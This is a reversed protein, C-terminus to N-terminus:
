RHRSSCELDKYIYIVLAEAKTVADSDKSAYGNIYIAEMVEDFSDSNNAYDNIFSEAQKESFDFSWAFTRAASFIADYRMTANISRRERAWRDLDRHAAAIVIRSTIITMELSRLVKNESLPRNRREVIELYRMRDQRALPKQIKRWFFQVDAPFLWEQVM